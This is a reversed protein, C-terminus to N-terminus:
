SPNPEQADTATATFHQSATMEFRTHGTLGAHRLCWLTAEDSDDCNVAHDRCDQCTGVFRISANEAASLTWSVFRYRAKVSM